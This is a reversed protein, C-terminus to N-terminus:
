EKPARDRFLVPKTGSHAFLIDHERQRARRLRLKMEDETEEKKEPTPAPGLKIGDAETVGMARMMEIKAKLVALEDVVAAAAPFGVKCGIAHKGNHTKCESCYQPPM